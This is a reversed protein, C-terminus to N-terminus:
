FLEELRSVDTVRVALDDLEVASLETLRREAWDPIAANFRKELLRRVIEQRGRQMGRHRGQELGQQLGQRMGQQIGQELGKLIAPGIVEHDMIDNLIPMKEAEEEVTSALRRRGSIILFREFAASREPEELAAIRALILRVTDGQNQFGALVALLNDEIHPSELLFRSDLSRIDILTYQFELDPGSLSKAMRVREEGVYLVIQKSFQKFRRYIHLAYEAMRLAMRADNTSQLEVHVLSSVDTRGLLDVRSTQVQPMEVNLWRSM